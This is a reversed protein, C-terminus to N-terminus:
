KELIVLGGSKIIVRIAAELFLYLHHYEVKIMFLLINKKVIFVNLVSSSKYWHIVCIVDVTFIMNMEIKGPLM